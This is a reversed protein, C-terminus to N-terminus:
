NEDLPPFSHFLLEKRHPCHDKHNEAQGDGHETGSLRVACSCGLSRNRDLQPVPCRDCFSPRRGFIPLRELDDPILEIDVENKHSLRGRIGVLVCLDVSCSRCISKGVKEHDAAFDPRIEYLLSENGRNILEIRQHRRACLLLVVLIGDCECCDVPLRVTKSRWTRDCFIFAHTNALVPKVLKSELNWNSGVLVHINHPSKGELIRVSVTLIIRVSIPSENLDVVEFLAKTAAEIRDEAGKANSTGPIHGLSCSTEIDTFRLVVISEGIDPLHYVLLDYIWVPDAVLLFIEATCPFLSTKSDHTLLICCKCGFRVICGEILVERIALPDHDIGWLSWSPLL